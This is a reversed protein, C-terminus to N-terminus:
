EVAMSEKEEVDEEETSEIVHEEPSEAVENKENDYSYKYFGRGVRVITPEDIARSIHNTRFNKLPIDMDLHREVGKHIDTISMGAGSERLVMKIASVIKKVDLQSSKKPLRNKDRQKTDDIETNSFKQEPKEPEQIQRVRSEMAKQLNERNRAAIDVPDNSHEIERKINTSELTKNRENYMDFYGKVSIEDLGRTELEDLKDLRKKLDFYADALARREQTISEMMSYVFRKEERLDM